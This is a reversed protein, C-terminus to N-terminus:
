ETRLAIVPDRKAAMSAPILGAIFTLFISIAILIVADWPNILALNNISTLHKLLINIPILSLLTIGIGILGALLGITIAEANFVRAIDKKRAGISRLIGIEKTRELVSIYTIIGIMISSVVLSISTFVILVISIADILINLSSVLVGMLDTYYVGAAKGIKEAEKKQAATATAETVGLSEYYERIAEEKKLDNYDDLYAKIIEKSAFDVPYIKIRNPKKVGGLKILDQYRLQEAIEPSYHYETGEFPNLTPNEEMWTIIESTLANELLTETLDVTYGIAGTLAGIETDENARVIGVIELEIVYEEDPFVGPLIFNNDTSIRVFKTGINKYYGDNLLVQYTTGLIASFDISTQEEGFSIGLSKLVLDSIQNYKNVVLVIDHEDRPLHGDLVDYQTELFSYPNAEDESKPLESWSSTSIKYYASGDDYEKYKFVNLNVGYEYSIANYLKPDIKKIVNDIYEQTLDNKIQLSAQTVKNIIVKKESPYIPLDQNPRMEMLSEFDIATSSIELPYGSLTDSQMKNIYNQFGNAVSLVLAIGIIGISGAFAILFTRWKKTALNRLSLGFATFFSMSTREKRSVGRERKKVKLGSYELDPTVYPNSDDIVLGDLLKIIRTSYRYALDPNHTVMIVLRNSAIKKLIEMIQISTESDIAGTPEDALIVDPNNVLARAIAVRQMQGGSLQNPKKYIQDQLGVSELAQIARARREAKSIGSLTLALEVNSLVSQHHILNYTQFVFGITHNRYSDWDYDVFYKTSKNNIILDGSTYRDLGGIINLLTTKGCGSPGLISVFESRRFELSVGKLAEIKNEGLRYVKTINKLKLMKSGRGFTKNM